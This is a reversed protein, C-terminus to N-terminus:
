GRFSDFEFVPHARALHLFGQPSIADPRATPDLGLARLAEASEREGLSERLLGGVQKRRQSLLRHVWSRYAPYVERGGLPVSRPLIRVVESAVAPPPWFAGAPLARVREVTAWYFLVATGPGYDRSGPLASLRAALEKQITVAALRLPLASELLAILLHTAISYPLNAVLKFPGLREVEKLVVPNLEGRAGLADALLFRVNSSAALEGKAFDLLHPDVEVTLIQGARASLVRTLTGPGTGVELVADEPVLAAADAIDALIRPDHLFHQGLGKRPHLGARRLRQLV